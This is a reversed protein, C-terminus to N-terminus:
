EDEYFKDLVEQFQDRVREADEITRFYNGKEYLQDDAACFQEEYALVNLDSDIYYYMEGENVRWRKIRYLYCQFNFQYDVPYTVGLSEWVGKSSKIEIELGRKYAEIIESQKDITM